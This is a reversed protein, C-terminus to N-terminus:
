KENFYGKFLENSIAIHGKNSPHENDVPEIYHHLGLRKPVYVNNKLIAGQGLKFQNCELLPRANMFTILYYHDKLVNHLANYNQLFNISDSQEDHLYKYFTKAIPKNTTPLINQKRYYRRSSSTM